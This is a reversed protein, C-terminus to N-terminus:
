PPSGALAARVADQTETRLVKRDARTLGDTPIPPLLEVTVRGPGVGLLGGKPLVSGAGTIAVPVVAAKSDIALVFAGTKFRAEEHGATLGGEAFVVVRLREGATAAEM